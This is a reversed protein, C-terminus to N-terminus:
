LKLHRGGPTKRVPSLVGEYTDIDEVDVVKVGLKRCLGVSLTLGNGASYNSLMGGCSVSRKTKKAGGGSSRIVMSKDMGFADIEGLTRDGHGLPLENEKDAACTTRTSRDDELKLPVSYEDAGARSEDHSGFSDERSADSVAVPDEDSEVADERDAAKETPELDETSHDQGAERSLLSRVPLTETNPQVPPNVSLM